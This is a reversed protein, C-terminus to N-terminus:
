FFEFNEFFREWFEFIKGWFTFIAGLSNLIAGWIGFGFIAELIWIGFIAKFDM